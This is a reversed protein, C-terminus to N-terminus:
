VCCVSCVCCVCCVCLVCLVCLVCVVCVVCVCCVCLVCVVCVVCVCMCVCCVCVCVCVCSALEEMYQVKPDEAYQRKAVRQLSGRIGEEAKKLVKSDVDVLWVKHGTQAAVKVPSM